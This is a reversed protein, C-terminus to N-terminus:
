QGTLGGESSWVALENGTTDTFHFRSGGPFAFREVVIKGGAQIIKAESDALDQRYLVVLASGEATAMRKDALYFGGNIDDSEIDLYQDGFPTFHWGFVTGYFAKTASFDSSPLEIFTQYTSM